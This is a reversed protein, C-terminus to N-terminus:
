CGNKQELDSVMESFNEAARSWSFREAQYERQTETIFPIPDINFHNYILKALVNISDPHNPDFYKALSGAVEPMSTCNSSIIPLGFLTADLLPMGFGEAKSPYVFLSAKKYLDILKTDSVNQLIEIMDSDAHDFKYGMDVSGVIILRIGVLGSRLFADILSSINKRLEIRGVALIFRNQDPFRRGKYVDIPFSPGNLVAKLKADPVKYQTKLQNLTYNSVCAIKSARLISISFFLRMRIRTLYPFYEPHTIPLIDHIFIINKGVLPSIYQFVGYDIKEKNFLKPIHFILRKIAGSQPLYAYECSKEGILSQILSPNDSFIVIKFRRTEACLARLLSTLTTRTGQFKGNLVHGDFGIRLPPTSNNESNPHNNARDTM